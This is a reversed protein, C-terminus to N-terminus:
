AIELGASETEGTKLRFRYGRREDTGKKKVMREDDTLNQMADRVKRESENLEEAIEKVWYWAAPDISMLGLISRELEDIAVLDLRWRHSDFMVRIPDAPNAFRSKSWSLERYVGGKVARYNEMVACKGELVGSGRAASMMEGDEGAGSKREHHALMIATGTDHGLEVLKDLVNEMATADNEEGRWIGRFPELFLADPKHEDCARRILELDADSDVKLGSYGGDGWILLNETTLAKQDATLDAGTDRLLALKEQMFSAVGENEIMLIRLPAAPAQNDPMDDFLPVGATWRVLRNMGLTTKGKGARAITATIEGRVLQGHSILFPPTEIKHELYEGLTHVPPRHISDEPTSQARVLKNIRGAAADRDEQDLTLLYEAASQEAPDIM